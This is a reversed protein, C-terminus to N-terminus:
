ILTFNNSTLAPIGVLQAIRVQATGGVGDADFFLIGSRDNYILRQDSNTAATGIGFRAASLIGVPDSGFSVNGGFGTRSFAFFDDSAVFDNIKDFGETPSNYAFTDRGAGGFLNDTGIDGFIIDNGAGADITDNGALGSITENGSTGKLLDSQPTGLIEV